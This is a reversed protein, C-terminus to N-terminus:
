KPRQVMYGSANLSIATLDTGTRQRVIVFEGPASVVPGNHFNVTKEGTTNAGTEAYLTRVTESVKGTSDYTRKVGLIAFLGVTGTSTIRERIHQVFTQYNGLPNTNVKSGSLFFAANTAADDPLLAVQASFTSSASASTAERTLAVGRPGSADTAAVDDFANDTLDSALCSVLAARWNSGTTNVLTVFEGVTDVAAAPTSLDFVGNLTPSGTTADASGAIKFTLDGGAAVEVTPKGATSGVYKVLVCSTDDVTAFASGAVSVQDRFFAVNQASAPAPLLASLAAALALAATVFRTRTM